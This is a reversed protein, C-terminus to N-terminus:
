GVEIRTQHGNLGVNCSEEEEKAGGWEVNTMIDVILIKTKSISVKPYPVKCRPTTGFFHEALAEFDRYTFHRGYKFFEKKLSNSKNKFNEITEVSIDLSL